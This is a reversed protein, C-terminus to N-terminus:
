YMYNILITYIYLTFQYTVMWQRIPSPQTWHYQLHQLYCSDGTFTFLPEWLSLEEKSTRGKLCYVIVISLIYSKLCVWALRLCKVIQHVTQSYKHICVIENYFNKKINLKCEMLTLNLLPTLPPGEHHCKVKLINKCTCGEKSSAIRNSYYHMTKNSYCQSNGLVYLCVCDGESSHFKQGDERPIKLMRTNAGSLSKRPRSSSKTKCIITQFPPASWM